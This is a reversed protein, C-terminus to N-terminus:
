EAHKMETALQEAAARMQKALKKRDSKKTFRYNPASLYIAGLENKDTKPIPVAISLLGDELEDITWAM